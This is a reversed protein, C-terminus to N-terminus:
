APSASRRSRDARARALPAPLRAASLMCPMGRARTRSTLAAAARRRAPDGRGRPTFRGDPRTCSSAARWGCGPRAGGKRAAVIVRKAPPAEREPWLPFVVVDGARGALAALLEALADARHILTLRGRPRLRALCARSGPPWISRAGSPRRPRHRDRPPRRRARRPPYPPNSMVHDFPPARAAPPAPSRRRGARGRAAATPPSTAGRSPWCSRRRAGPRRGPCGPVRAALCLAAAGTGTGADLVGSAPGAPVAAALLVPDIAVRYGRRPQCFRLRGGLLRDDTLELEAPSTMSGPAPRTRWCGRPGSAPREDACWCGARSPASAARSAASMADALLCDIGAAALMAQAWSLHVLDNSRVLEVLPLCGLTRPRRRRRATQWREPHTIAVACALRCATRPVAQASPSRLKVASGAAVSDASLEAAFSSPSGRARRRRAAVLDVPDDEVPHLALDAQDGLQGPM